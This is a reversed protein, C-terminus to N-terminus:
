GFLATRLYLGLHEDIEGTSHRDDAKDFKDRFYDTAIQAQDVPLHNGVLREELSKEEEVWELYKNDLLFKIAKKSFNEQIHVIDFIGDKKEFFPMLDKLIRVKKM